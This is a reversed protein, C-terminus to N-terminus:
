AHLAELLCEWFTLGQGQSMLCALVSDFMGPTGKGGLVLLVIGSKNGPVVASSLASMSAVSLLTSLLASM